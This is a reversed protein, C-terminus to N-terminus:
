LAILDEVSVRDVGSITLEIEKVKKQQKLESVKEMVVESLQTRGLEMFLFGTYLKSPYVYAIYGKYGNGNTFGFKLAKGSDNLEKLLTDCEILCKEEGILNDIESLEVEKYKEIEKTLKLKAMPKGNVLKFATDHKEQTTENLFYGKEFKGSVKKLVNGLSDCYEFEREIPKLPTYKLNWSGVRLTRWSM